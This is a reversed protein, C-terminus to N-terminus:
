KPFQVGTTSSSVTFPDVTLYTFASGDSAQPTPYGNELLAGISADSLATGNAELILIADYIMKATANDASIAAQDRYATYQPIAILALIALIAIVIILEILTFGKKNRARYFFQLM